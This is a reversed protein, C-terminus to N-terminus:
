TTKFLSDCLSSLNLIKLFPVLICVNNTYVNRVILKYLINNLSSNINGLIIKRQLQTVIILISNAQLLQYLCFKTLTFKLKKTLM